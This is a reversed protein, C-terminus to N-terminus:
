TLTCHLKVTTEDAERGVRALGLFAAGCYLRV